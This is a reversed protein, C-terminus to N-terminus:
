VENRNEEAPKDWKCKTKYALTGLSRLKTAKNGTLLKRPAIEESM